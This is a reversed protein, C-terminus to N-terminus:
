VKPSVRLLGGVSAVSSNENHNFDSSRHSTNNEEFKVAPSSEQNHKLPRMSLRSAVWMRVTGLTALALIQERM